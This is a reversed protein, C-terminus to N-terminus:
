SIFQLCFVPRGLSLSKLMSDFKGESSWLLHKNSLLFCIFSKHIEGITLNLRSDELSILDGRM